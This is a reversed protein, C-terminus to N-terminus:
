LGPLPGKPGVGSVARRQRRIRRAVWVGLVPGIILAALAGVGVARNHDFVDSFGAEYGDDPGGVIVINVSVIAGVIAGVAGGLAVDALWQRATRNSKTSPESPAIQVVPIM